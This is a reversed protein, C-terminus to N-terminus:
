KYKIFKRRLLWWLSKPVENVAYSRLSNTNLFYSIRFTKGNKFVLQLFIHGMQRQEKSILIYIHECKNINREITQIIKSEKNDTLFQLLESIQPSLKVFLNGNTQQYIENEKLNFSGVKYTNVSEKKEQIQPM